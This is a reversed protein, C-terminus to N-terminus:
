STGNKDPDQSVWLCGEERGGWEEVSGAQSFHVEDEYTKGIINNSDCNTCINQITDYIIQSSQYNQDRNLPENEITWKSSLCREKSYSCTNAFKNQSLNTPLGPCM